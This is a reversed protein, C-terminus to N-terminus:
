KAPSKRFNGKPAKHVTFSSGSGEGPSAERSSSKSATGSSSFRARKQSTTSQAAEVSEVPSSIPPTSTVVPKAKVGHRKYLSFLNRSIQSKDGCQLFHWPSFTKSSYIEERDPLLSSFHELSKVNCFLDAPCPLSPFCSRLCNLMSVLHINSLGLGQFPFTVDNGPRNIVECCLVALQFLRHLHPRCHMEWDKSFYGIVDFPETICSDRLYCIFSRYESIIVGRDEFSIHGCSIFCDVLASVSSIYVESPSNKMVSFDFCSLGRLIKSKIVQSGLLSSIFSFFFDRVVELFKKPTGIQCRALVPLLPSNALFKDQPVFTVSTSELDLHLYHDWNVSPGLSSDDVIYQLMSYVFTCLQNYLRFSSDVRGELDNIFYHVDLCFFIFCSFFLSRYCLVSVLM